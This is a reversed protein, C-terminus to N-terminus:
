FKEEIGLGFLAFDYKVPDNVDFHRLTNTLEEVARWDNQKRKLLGLKRAVRGTHVDLPMHLIAPSIKDWIGFDVNGKDKRVMWRLFMNIRKASSGKLPDSIHKTIRPEHPLSFFVKKFESIAVQISGSNDEILNTFLNELGNYNLYINKISKIFYILDNENFTRHKFGSLDKSSNMVFNFPNNGMLEMMKQGNGIIVDRRGWAIIAVLFASIEIDEKLKFKHPISIPDRDIFARNNYALYKEELFLLLEEESLDM